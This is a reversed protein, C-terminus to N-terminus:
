GMSCNVGLSVGGNYGLVGKCVVKRGVQATATVMVRQVAAMREDKSLAEQMDYVQMSLVQLALLPASPLPHPFAGHSLLGVAATGRRM